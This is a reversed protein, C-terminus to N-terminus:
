TTKPRESIGDLAPLETASAAAAKNEEQIAAFVEKRYVKVAKPADIGLKVSDGRIDIISVEIDDGIMIREGIKRALVLM